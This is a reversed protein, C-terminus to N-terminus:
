TAGGRGCKTTPSFRTTKRLRRLQSQHDIVSGTATSETTSLLFDFTGFFDRMPFAKHCPPHPLHINFSPVLCILARAPNPLGRGHSKNGSIIVGEPKRETIISKQHAIGTEDKMNKRNKQKPSSAFFCYRLIQCQILIKTRRLCETCFPTHSKM